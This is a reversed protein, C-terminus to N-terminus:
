SYLFWLMRKLILFSPYKQSRSMSALPLYSRVVRLSAQIMPVDKAVLEPSLKWSNAPLKAGKLGVLKAGTEILLQSIKDHSVWFNRVNWIIAVKGGGKPRKGKMWNDDTTTELSYYQFFTSNEAFFPPLVTFSSFFILKKDKKFAPIMFRQIISPFSSTIKLWNVWWNVGFALGVCRCIM